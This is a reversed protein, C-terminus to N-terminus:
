RGDPCSGGPGPCYTDNQGRCAQSACGSTAGGQHERRARLLSDAIGTVRNVRDLWETVATNVRCDPDHADPAADPGAASCTCPLAEPFPVAADGYENADVYDHLDTFSAIGPPVEGSAIDEAVMDMILVASDEDTRLPRVTAAPLTVPAAPDSDRAGAGITVTGGGARTVIGARLGCGYPYAAHM